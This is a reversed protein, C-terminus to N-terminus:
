IETHSLAERGYDRLRPTGPFKLGTYSQERGVPAPFARRRSLRVRTRASRTLPDLSVLIEDVLGPHCMIVGGDPLGDLFQRMLAGFDPQGRFIMPAPSHRSQIRYRRARRPPPVAREPHRAGAGQARRAAPGFASRTRGPAGLREPAAENVATLFADRVQPFLQVHQHGDVFDPRPRVIRQLGRTAGDIRGPDTRPDLRRLLGARLLKPFPLFLGGDLPRFHM